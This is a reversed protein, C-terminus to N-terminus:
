EQSAARTGILARAADAKEALGRSVYLLTLPPSRVEEANGADAILAALAELAILRPQVEDLLAAACELADQSGDSRGGAM